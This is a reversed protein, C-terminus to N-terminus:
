AITYRVVVIGSGGSNSSGGDGGGGGGTNVTGSSQIPAGGGLGRTGASYSLGGGAYYYNGGSLEGTTTASGMANILSSTAGIGANVGSGAAGAGGGGSGAGVGTQNAGANGQGATGAGGTSPSSVGGGGGGSGGVAGNYQGSANGGGAGGGVSATLSAFQSNSGNSGRGASGNCVGGAGITVTQASAAVAQSTFTLLGGAGGGAGYNGGGGGGGAVQLIDCSLAQSPTFIGSSLFAHYWYTGDNTIIDGGTAKPLITPETGVAAIGYLSFTCGTTFNQTGNGVQFYISTISASDAWLAATLVQGSATANNEVVNDISISKNNSGFANPIYIETNNFTNATQSADNVYMFGIESTDSYSAASSGNGILTRQSYNTTSSNFRMQLNTGGGSEVKRASIVVKLDTYGSQPINDFTVSAAASTLTVRELLVYNAPM